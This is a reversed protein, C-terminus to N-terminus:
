RDARVAERQTKAYAALGLSRYITARNVGFVEAVEKITMEPDALMKRATRVQKSNLKPPRGRAVGLACRALALSRASAIV